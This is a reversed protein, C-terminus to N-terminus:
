LVRLTLKYSCEMGRLSIQLNESGNPPRELSFIFSAFLTTVIVLKNSSLSSGSYLMLYCRHSITFYRVPSTSLFSM